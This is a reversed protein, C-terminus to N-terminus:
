LGLKGIDVIVGDGVNSVSVTDIDASVDILLLTPNIYEKKM